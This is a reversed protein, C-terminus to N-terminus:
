ETSEFRKAWVCSIMLPAAINDTHTVPFGTNCPLKEHTKGFLKEVYRSVFKHTEKALKFLDAVGYVSIRAVFKKLRHILSELVTGLHASLEPCGAV